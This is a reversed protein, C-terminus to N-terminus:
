NPNFKVFRYDDVDDQVPSNCRYSVCSLERRDRELLPPPPIEPPEIIDKNLDCKDSATKVPPPEIANRYCSAPIKNPINCSSVIVNNSSNTSMISKKEQSSSHVKQRGLTGNGTYIQPTNAADNKLPKDLCASSLPTETQPALNRPVTKKVLCELNVEECATNEFNFYFAESLERLNKPLTRHSSMDSRLIGSRKQANRLEATACLSNRISANLTKESKQKDLKEAAYRIKDINHQKLILDCHESFDDDKKRTFEATNVYCIESDINGLTKSFKQPITRHKNSDPLLMEKHLETAHCKQQQRQM